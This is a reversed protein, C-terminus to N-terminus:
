LYWIILYKQWLINAEIIFSYGVNLEKKTYLNERFKDYSVGYGSDNYVAEDIRKILESREIKINFIDYYIDDTFIKAFETMSMNYDLMKLFDYAYFQNDIVELNNLLDMTGNELNIISDFDDKEKLFVKKFEQDSMNEYVNTAISSLINKSSTSELNLDKENFVKQKVYDCYKVANSTAIQDYILAYVDNNERISGDEPEFLANEFNTGEVINKIYSEATDRSLISM